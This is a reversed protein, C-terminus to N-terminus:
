DHLNVITGNKFIDYQGKTVGVEIIQNEKQATYFEDSVVVNAKVFKFNDDTKLLSAINSFSINNDKDICFKCDKPVSERFKEIKEKNDTLLDDIPNSGDLLKGIDAQPIIGNRALCCLHLSSNALIIPRIHSIWCTDFDEEPNFSVGYQEEITFGKPNNKFKEKLLQIEKEIFPIIHPNEEYVERYINKRLAVWNVGTEYMHSVFQGILSYNEPLIVFTAGIFLEEERHHVISKERVLGIKEILNDYTFKALRPRHVQQRTTNDAADISVRFHHVAKAVANAIAPTILDGNTEITIKLGLESLEQIIQTINPHSLPDGGGTLRVSKGGLQRFEQFIKLLKFLPIFTKHKARLEKAFCMVCNNPCFNSIDIDLRIPTLVKHLTAKKIAEVWDELKEPFIKAHNQYFVRQKNNSFAFIANWKGYQKNILITDLKNGM